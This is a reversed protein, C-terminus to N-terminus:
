LPFSYIPEFSQILRATLDWSTLVNLPRNDQVETVKWRNKSLLDYFFDETSANKLEATFYYQTAQWVDDLGFEEMSIAQPIRPKDAYYLMKGVQYRIIMHTMYPVDDNMTRREFKLRFLLKDADAMNILNAKNLSVWSIPNTRSIVCSINGVRYIRIYDIADVGSPVDFEGQVMGHLKSPDLTFRTPRTSGEYNGASDDLFVNILTLNAFNPWIIVSKTGLKTYGGVRGSGFCVKCSMSPKRSTNDFCTCLEGFRRVQYYWISVRDGKVANRQREILRPIQEQLGIQHVHDDLQDTGEIVEQSRTAPRYVRVGM